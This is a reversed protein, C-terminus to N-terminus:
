QRVSVTGCATTYCTQTIGYSAGGGQTVSVSAPAGANILTINANNSSGTQTVSANNNNGSVTISSYNGLNATTGNQSVSVTNYSGQVGIFSQHGASGTQTETINNSSGNVSIVGFQPQYNTGQQVTTINNNGGQVWLFQYHQGTDLGTAIGNADTGQNINVYNGAGNVSLDVINKGAHTGPDGQRIYIQNAGGSVTAYTQYGTQGTATNFTAGDVINGAGIQTINYTDNAGSQQIYVINPSGQTLTNQRTQVTSVMAQQSSTITASNTSQTGTLTPNGNNATTTSGDSYTTIIVPQNYYYTTNGTVTTTVITSNATSVVTPATAGGTGGTQGAALPTSSMGGALTNTQATTPNQTGTFTVGQGTLGLNGSLLTGNYNANTVFLYINGNGDVGQVLIQVSGLSTFTGDSNVLIM